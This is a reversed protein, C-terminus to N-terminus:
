GSSSVRGTGRNVARAECHRGACARGDFTTFAGAAVGGVDTPHAKLWVKAAAEPQQHQNLIADMMQNEGTLTFKLNRCCSEWPQSLRERLRDPHQYLHDRRRLQPRFVADGGSLYRLNFRM